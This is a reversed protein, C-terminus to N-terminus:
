DFRYHKRALDMINLRAEWLNSNHIGEKIANQEKEETKKRFFNSRNSYRLSHFATGKRRAKRGKEM